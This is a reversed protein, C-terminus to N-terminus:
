QEGAFFCGLIAFQKLTLNLLLLPLLLLLLQLLLLLLLLQLPTLCWQEVLLGGGALGKNEGVVRVDVAAVASKV